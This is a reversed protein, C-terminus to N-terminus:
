ARERAEVRKVWEPKVPEPAYDADLRTEVGRILARVEIDRLWLQHLHKRAAAEDMFVYILKEIPKDDGYGNFARMAAADTMESEPVDRGHVVVRLERTAAVYLGEIAHKMVYGPWQLFGGNESIGMRDHGPKAQELATAADADLDHCQILTTDNPGRRVLWPGHELWRRSVLRKHGAGKFACAWGHPWHLNAFGPPWYRNPEADWEEHLVDFSALEFPVTSLVALVQVPVVLTGRREAKVITDRELSVHGTRGWEAFVDRRCTPPWREAWDKSVPRKRDDVSLETPEGVHFLGSSLLGQLAAVLNPGSIGITLNM